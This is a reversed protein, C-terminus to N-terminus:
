GIEVIVHQGTSHSKCRVSIATAVNGIIEIEETISGAGVFGEILKDGEKIEYDFSSGAESMSSLSVSVTTVHDEPNKGFVGFQAFVEVWPGWFFPPAYVDFMRTMGGSNGFLNQGFGKMTGGGFGIKAIDKGIKWIDNPDKGTMDKYVQRETEGGPHMRGDVILDRATQFAKIGM